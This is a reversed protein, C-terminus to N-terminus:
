QVGAREMAQDWNPFYYLANKMLDPHAKKVSKKALTEGNNHLEVIQTLVEEPSMNTDM